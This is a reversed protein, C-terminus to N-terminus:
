KSKSLNRDIESQDLKGILAESQDIEFTCRRAPDFSPVIINRPRGCLQCKQQSQVFIKNKDPFFFDDDYKTTTSLFFISQPWMVGAGVLWSIWTIHSRSRSFPRILTRSTTSSSEKLSVKTAVAINVASCRRSFLTTMHHWTINLERCFDNTIKIKHLSATCKRNIKQGCVFILIM